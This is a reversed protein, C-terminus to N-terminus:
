KELAARATGPDVTLAVWEEERIRIRGGRMQAPIMLRLTEALPCHTEGAMEEALEMLCPLIAPYEELPRIVPRIRKPDYDATERLDLVIGEQTGSRFPVLVRQGRELIMGEPIRYTFAQAVNEHVIDVIVQCYM